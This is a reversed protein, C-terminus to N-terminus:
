FCVADKECCDIYFFGSPFCFFYIALSVNFLILFFLNFLSACFLLAKQFFVGFM